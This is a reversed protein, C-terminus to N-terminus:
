GGTCSCVNNSIDRDVIQCRPQGPPVQLM